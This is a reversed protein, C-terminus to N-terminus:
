WFSPVGRHHFIDHRTHDNRLIYPFYLYPYVLTFHNMAIFLNEFDTSLSMEHAPAVVKFHITQRRQKDETSNSHELLKVLSIHQLDQNTASDWVLNLPLFLFRQLINLLFHIKIFYSM